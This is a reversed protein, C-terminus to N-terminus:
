SVGRLRRAWATASPDLRRDLTALELGTTLSAGAIGANTLTRELAKLEVGSPPGEARLERLHDAWTILHAVAHNPEISRSDAVRWTQPAWPTTWVLALALDSDPKSEAFEVHVQAPDTRLGGVVKWGRDVRQLCVVRYSKIAFPESSWDIHFTPALPSRGIDDGAYKLCRIQEWGGPQNLREVMAEGPTIRAPPYWRFAGSLRVNAAPDRTWIRAMANAARASTWLAARFTTGVTESVVVGTTVSGMLENGLHLNLPTVPSLDLSFLNEGPIWESKMPGAGLAEVAAIRAEAYQRLYMGIPGKVRPASIKGEDIRDLVKALDRLQSVSLNL